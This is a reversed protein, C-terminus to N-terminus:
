RFIAVVLFGLERDWPCENAGVRMFGDRFRVRLVQLSWLNRYNATM